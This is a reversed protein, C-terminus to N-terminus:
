SVPSPGTGILGIGVLTVEVPDLPVLGSATESLDLQVLDPTGWTKKTTPQENM